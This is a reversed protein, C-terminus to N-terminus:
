RPLSRQRIWLSAVWKTGRTVPLGAHLSVPAPDGSDELNEFVLIRGAQASIRIGLKPFYTEGGAAPYNLYGLITTSRDGAIRLPDGALAATGLADRHLQYQEGPRYRLIALPEARELCADGYYALREALRLAPFELRGTAFYSTMGTRIQNPRPRGTDPDLIQSKALNARANLRLWACELTSLGKDDVGVFPKAHIQKLLDRNLTALKPLPLAKGPAPQRDCAHEGHMVIRALLEGHYAARGLWARSSSLADPNEHEQWALALATEAPPYGADAAANLDDLSATDRDEEASLGAYRAASRAYLAEPLQQQAARDLWECATRQAGKANVDFLMRAYALQAEPYGSEAAQRLRTGARATFGRRLDQLAGELLTAAQDNDM